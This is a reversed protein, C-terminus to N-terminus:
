SVDIAVRSDWSAAEEEVEAEAEGGRWRGERELAPVQM